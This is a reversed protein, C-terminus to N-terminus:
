MGWIDQRLPAIHQVVQYYRGDNPVFPIEKGVVPESFVDIPDLQDFIKEALFDALQNKITNSLNSKFDKDNRYDQYLYDDIKSVKTLLEGNIYMELKFEHCLGYNDYSRCYTHRVRGITNYKKVIQKVIDRHYIVEPKPKIYYSGNMRRLGLWPFTM